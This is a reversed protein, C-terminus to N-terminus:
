YGGEIHLEKRNYKYYSTWSVSCPNCYYETTYEDNGVYRESDGSMAQDRKCKPCEGGNSM